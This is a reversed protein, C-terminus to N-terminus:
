GKSVLPDAVVVDAPVSGIATPVLAASNLEDEELKRRVSVVV